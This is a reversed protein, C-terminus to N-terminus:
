AAEAELAAAERRSASVARMTESSIFSSSAILMLISFSLLGTVLALSMWMLVAIGLMLPRVTSNWILIGFTLEFLVIGHTWINIVYVNDQLFTFDVLRSESQAILWWMAEGSWWPTGGLKTLAMMLYLAATHVQILRICIAGATSRIPEVGDIAGPGVSGDNKRDKLWRDLSVYSGTPALCLYAVLMTLIPEALGTIMPGRHIYSLLVVLSLVSTIRTLWGLTFAFLIAFGLAHLIWLGLPSDAFRLFSFEYNASAEPGAGTIFRVTENPLLGQPGFWRILDATHSLHYYLAFSGTLIRVVCLAYVDQPTFWFQNWGHGFREALRTFYRSAAQIM